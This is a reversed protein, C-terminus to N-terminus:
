RISQVNDNFVNYLKLFLCHPPAPSLSPVRAESSGGGGERGGVGERGEKRGGEGGGEWGGERGERGRGEWGLSAPYGALIGINNLLILM